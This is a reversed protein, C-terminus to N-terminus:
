KPSWEVAFITSYSYVVLPIGSTIPAIIDLAIPSFEFTFDKNIAWRLAGPRLEFFWGTEGAKDILTDSALISTGTMLSTRVHGLFSLYEFGAGINVVDLREIDLTFDFSQDLQVAGFFGYRSFRYGVMVGPSSRAIIVDRRPDYISAALDVQAWWGNEHMVSDLLILSKRQESLARPRVARLVLPKPVLAPVLSKQTESKPAANEATEDGARQAFTVACLLLVLIPSLWLQISGKV